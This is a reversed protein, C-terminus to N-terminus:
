TTRYVLLYFYLFLLFSVIGHFNSKSQQEYYKMYASALGKLLKDNQGNNSTFAAQIAIATTFLDEIDLLFFLNITNEGGGGGARERLKGPDPRYLYVARNMKAADLEWNSIGVVAVDLVEKPWSPEILSHLM